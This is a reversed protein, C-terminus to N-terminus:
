SCTVYIVMCMGTLYVPELVKVTYLAVSICILPLEDVAVTEGVEDALIEDAMAGGTMGHVPGRM